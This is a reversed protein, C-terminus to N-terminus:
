FACILYVKGQGNKSFLLLSVILLCLGIFAQGVLLVRVRNFKWILAFSIIAALCGLETALNSIMRNSYMM